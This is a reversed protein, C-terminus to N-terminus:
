HQAAEIRKRWYRSIGQASMFSPNGKEYADYDAESLGAATAQARDWEQYLRSLEPDELHGKVFEVCESLRRELQDLHAKVDTVEGFHTLYLSSARAARLKILSQQWIELQFEPPPAPVSVYDLGPLRVGAVDGTFINSGIRYAFHHGAHGPTDLIQIEVGALALTGEQLAVVRNKPAAITKGWLYEMKDQYIRTASSLLREPDIIHKAGKEHVYITSGRQAWYGAGGSHDLHIHTVLVHEISEPPFGADTLKQELTAQTSAPGTEILINGKPGEVLFSAIVQSRGLFEQDIVHIKM